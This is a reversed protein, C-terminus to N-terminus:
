RGRAEQFAEYVGDALSRTLQFGLAAQIGSNDLVAAPEGGGPGLEIQADPEWERLLEALERLTTNLAGITHTRGEGRDPREVAATFAAVADDVHMLPFVWDARPARAHQGHAVARIMEIMEMSAGARRGRGLIGCPRLGTSDLGWTRAYHAALLESQAKCAGYVTIPDAVSDDVIREVGHRTRYRGLPGFQQVSSAWVMKPVGLQRVAELVNVIGGTMVRVATAPDQQAAPTLTAALHVLVDPRVEGITRFVHLPDTVDGPLLTIAGIEEERLVDFMPSHRVDRDYVAVQREHRLLVRARHAGIFGAGGFLLM